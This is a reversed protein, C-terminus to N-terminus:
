FKGTVLAVQLESRSQLVFGKDSKSLGGFTPVIAPAGLFVGDPSVRVLGSGAARAMQQADSHSAQVKVSIESPVKTPEDKPRYSTAWVTLVAAPIVLTMGTVLVAIAANPHGDGKELLFYGAAAGGAAGVLPFVILSWTKDLGLATPVVFGLEAGILGLGVMGKYDAKVRQESSTDKKTNAAMAPSPGLFALVLLVSLLLVLTRNGFAV